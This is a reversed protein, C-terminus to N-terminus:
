QMQCSPASGGVSGSGRVGRRRATAVAAVADGIVAETTKAAALRVMIREMGAGALRAAIVAAVAGGIVGEVTAKATVLRAAIPNMQPLEPVAGLISDHRLQFSKYRGRSSTGQQEVSGATFASSGSNNRSGHHNSNWLGITDPFPRTPQVAQNGSVSILSGGSSRSPEISRRALVDLISSFSTKSQIRWIASGTGESSGGYSSSGSSARSTRPTTRIIDETKSRLPPTGPVVQGLPASLLPPTPAVVATGSSVRTVSPSRTDTQNSERPSLSEIRSKLSASSSSNSTSANNSSRSSPPSSTAWGSSEGPSRGNSPVATARDNSERGADVAAHGAKESYHNAESCPAATVVRAASEGGKSGSSVQSVVAGTRSSDKGSSSSGEERPCDNRVTMNVQARPQSPSVLRSAGPPADDDIVGPPREPGAAVDAKEPDSLKATPPQWTAHYVPEVPSSGEGGYFAKEEMASKGLPGKTRPACVETGSRGEARQRVDSYSCSVIGNDIRQLFVAASCATRPRSIIDVSPPRPVFQTPESEVASPLSTAAFSGNLDGSGGGVMSSCGSGGGSITSRSPLGSCRSPLTTSPIRLSAAASAPRKARGSLPGNSHQPHQRPFFSEDGEVAHRYHRPRAKRPLAQGHERLECEPRGTKGRRRVAVPPRKRAPWSENQSSLAYLITKPVGPIDHLASSPPPQAKREHSASRRRKDENECNCAGYGDNVKPPRKMYARWDVLFQNTSGQGRCGGRIVRKETKVRVSKGDKSVDYCGPGIGEHTTVAPKNM